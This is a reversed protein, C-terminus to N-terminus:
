KLDRRCTERPISSFPMPMISQSHVLGILRRFIFVVEHVHLGFSWPMISSWCHRHHFYHGANKSMLKEEIEPLSRELDIQM